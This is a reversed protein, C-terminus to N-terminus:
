SNIKLKMFVADKESKGSRNFKKPVWESGEENKVRVLKERKYEEFGLRKYLRVARSNDATTRLNYILLGLESSGWDILSKLASTMIGPYYSVGRVISDLDCSHRKFDFNSLGMHGIYREKVKLIFLIRVPDNIIKDRLWLTTGKQTINFQSAFWSRHKKRWATLLRIIKKDNVSSQTLLILKFNIHNFRGSINTSGFELTEIKRVKYLLRKTNSNM